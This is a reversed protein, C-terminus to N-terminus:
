AARRPEARRNRDGAIHFAVPLTALLALFASTHFVRLIGLRDTIFGFLLPAAASAVGNVLSAIGFAKDLLREDDFSTALFTNVVPVTGKTVAGLAISIAAMAPVSTTASLAVLLGAMVLESCIFVTRSEFIDAIKGFVVKGLMNGVFFAGSLSGLLATSAGRHMYRFPIFVFLSSSALSDIFSCAIAQILRANCLLGRTKKARPGAERKFAENRTLATYALMLVIPIIGFLRATIRWSCMAAMATVCASVGIRGIDGIATFNGMAKGLGSKSSSRAVLSLSIPHFMGFGISGVTFALIFGAFSNAGSTILFSFSYIVLAFRLMRFGGFRNSLSASPLALAVSALSAISTLFGIESFSLDLDRRIFPLLLPLSALWGDNLIHLCSLFRMRDVSARKLARLITKM